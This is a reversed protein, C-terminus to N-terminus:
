LPTNYSVYQSNQWYRIVHDSVNKTNIFDIHLFQYFSVFTVPLYQVFYGSEVLRRTVYDFYQRLTCQVLIPITWTTLIVYTAADDRLTLSLYAIRALINGRDSLKPLTDTHEINTGIM